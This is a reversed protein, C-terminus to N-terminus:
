RRQFIGEEGSYTSKQRLKVQVDAPNQIERQINSSTRHSEEYCWWSWAGFSHHKVRQFHSFVRIRRQNKLLRFDSEKELCFVFGYCFESLHKKSFLFGQILFFSSPNEKFSSFLILFSWWARIQKSDDKFRWYLYSIQQGFRLAGKHKEFRFSCWARIEKSDKHILFFFFFFSITAIKPKEGDRPRGFFLLSRDFNGRWRPFRCLM